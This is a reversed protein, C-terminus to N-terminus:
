TATLAEIAYGRGAGARGLRRLRAPRARAGLPRAALAPLQARWSFAIEPLRAAARRADRRSPGAEHVDLTVEGVNVRRPPPLPSMAHQEQTRLGAWALAAWGAMLLVGGIPTVAGIARVGTAALLYLSGAFILGGALFLWAAVSAARGGGAQRIPSCAFV